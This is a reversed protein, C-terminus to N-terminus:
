PAQDDDEEDALNIFREIPIWASENNVRCQEITKRRCVDISYVPHIEWLSIRKLNEQPEGDKCPKHSADFFLHGTIRVPREAVRHHRLVPVEYHGGRRHPTIEGTVSLCAEDDTDQVLDFHVDNSEAGGM